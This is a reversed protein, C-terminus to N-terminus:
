KVNKQKLGYIKSFKRITANIMSEELQTYSFQIAGIIFRKSHKALPNIQSRTYSLFM